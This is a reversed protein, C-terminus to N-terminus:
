LTGVRVDITDTATRSSSDTIALEFTLTETSSVAPLIVSTILSAPDAITAPTGRTQRWSIAPVSKSATGQLLVTQQEFATQDPGASATPLDINLVYLGNSIDNVIATGSPLYPYVSWAGDFNRSDDAPFTDFYAIESLEGAALDGMELLRLGTTYNSEFVRNGRVYLNHDISTTGALYQFALSPADLNALDFVLTRTRLGYQVEDLEDGLLFFRQDETLWGQHTFGLQPYNFASITNTASKDTVDVIAVHNENSSVCIERGTYNSDPGSYTVCQTDHTDAEAHCGAFVPNAPDRIDVMHLGGNCTNTGVAYAFGSAENIALNHANAFGNYITDATFSQPTTVNRLRTLDFVQMGHAGANDAVVYAHDQYVKIDRWGSSSTATPLRGLYVPATPSSVDVFATGTTQGVLAYERQSQPDTWGWIDNGKSGGMASHPLRKQLSINSCAFDGARGGSCATPGTGLQSGGRPGSGGNGGGGGGCAALAVLALCLISASRYLRARAVRAWQRPASIRTNTAAQVSRM